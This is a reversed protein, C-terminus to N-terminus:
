ATVKSSVFWTGDVLLVLEHGADRAEGNACLEFRASHGNIVDAPSEDTAPVLAFNEAHINHLTRMLQLASQPQLDVPVRTAARAIKEGPQLMTLGDDEALAIGM